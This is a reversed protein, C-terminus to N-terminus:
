PVFHRHLQRHNLLKNCVEAIGHNNKNKEVLLSPWSIILKRALPNGLPTRTLWKSAKRSVLLNHNVCFFIEKQDIQLVKKQTILISINIKWNFKKKKKQYNKKKKKWNKEGVIIMNTNFKNWKIMVIIRSM